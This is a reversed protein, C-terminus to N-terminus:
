RAGVAPVDPSLRATARMVHRRCSLKNRYVSGPEVNLREVQPSFMDNDGSIFIRPVRGLGVNKRGNPMRLLGPRDLLKAAADIDMTHFRMNDFVIGDHMGPEFLAVEEHTCVLLPHKFQHLAWQTKGIGPPGCLVLSQTDRSWQPDAPTWTSAPFRLPACLEERRAAVVEADQKDRLRHMEDEIESYLCPSRRKVLAALESKHIKKLAKCKEAARAAAPTRMKM